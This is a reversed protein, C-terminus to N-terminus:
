SETFSPDCADSDIGRGLELPQQGRRRAPGRPPARSPLGLHELIKQAVQEDRIVSIVRMSGGCRACTLVDIIWTRKMLTAWDLRRDRGPDDPGTM